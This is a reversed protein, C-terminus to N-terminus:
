TTVEYEWRFFKNRQVSVYRTCFGYLLPFLGSSLYKTYDVIIFCLSLSYIHCLNTWTSNRAEAHPFWGWHTAVLINDGVQRDRHTVFLIDRVQRNVNLYWIYLKIKHTCLCRCAVRMPDLRVPTTHANFLIKRKSVIGCVTSTCLNRNDGDDFRCLEESEKQLWSGPSVFFFFCTLTLDTTYANVLTACWLHIIRLEKNNVSSCVCSLLM